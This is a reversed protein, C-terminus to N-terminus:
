GILAEVEAAIALASTLGPSDIGVLNVLGPRGRAGEEAVVFDRFGQGPGQLKARIGAMDPVLEEEAIQPLLRRVGAAFAARRGEDVGYDRRRDPLYEADPGFRLRG